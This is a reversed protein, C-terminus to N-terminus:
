PLSHLKSARVDVLSTKTKLRLTEWFFSDLVLAALPTLTSTASPADANFFATNGRAAVADARAAVFGAAATWFDSARGAIVLLIDFTFDDVVGDAALFLREGWFFFKDPTFIYLRESSLVDSEGVEVNESTM